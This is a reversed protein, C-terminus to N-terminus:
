RLAPPSHGPGIPGGLAERGDPRSWLEIDITVEEGLLTKMALREWRSGGAFRPLNLVIRALAGLAQREGDPENSTVIRFSLAVTRTVGRITLDGVALFEDGFRTVRRSEFLIEPHTGVALFQPARLRDDILASGTAISAARISARVASKTVDTPDYVIAAEFDTFAGRLSGLGGAFPMSFSLRSRERDAQLTTQASVPQAAALVLLLAVRPAPVSM